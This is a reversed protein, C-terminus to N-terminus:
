INQWEISLEVEHGDASTYVAGQTSGSPVADAHFTSAGDYVLDSGDATFVSGDTVSSSCTLKGDQVACLGKSSTLTFGDDTSTTTFGACTGTTYWTGGSIICGKKNGSTIVNLYGKGEFPGGTSTSTPATTTTTATPSAKSGKPLYKIGSKPCSSDTLTNASVYDGTQISGRVYFFYWIEDLQGDSTCGLYVKKGHGKKLAKQIQAYSYTKTTSPVIGADKLWDYSPLTKFLDVTRQFFDPIEDTPQYDMYCKTDFTSMCTGHKGWEHEWFSEASGSNSTWYTNMYSLLDTYGDAKLIDSINTYQRSEDCYQEYTGDCNDPWLGHVTWSDDPGTAPDVDWFQTQLISGGPYDFCCLNAVETKNHCSLPGNNSCSASQGSLASDRLVHSQLGLVAQASGLAAVAFNSVSRFSPM